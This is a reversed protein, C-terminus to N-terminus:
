IKTMQMELNKANVVKFNMFPLEKEDKYLLLENRWTFDSDHLWSLELLKSVENYM